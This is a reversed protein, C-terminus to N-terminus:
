DWINVTTGTAPQDITYGILSLSAHAASGNSVILTDGATGADFEGGETIRFDLRVKDGEMVMQGGYAASALNVLTGEANRAWYGNVGLDADVYLSFTRTVGAAGVEATFGIEGVPAQAWSPLAPPTTAPTFDVLRADSGDVPKGNVSDVVLTVFSSSGPANARELTTSVVAPQLADQVGDGNGDGQVAPTTGNGIGPVQQEVSPAVGNGDVVVTTAGSVVREVAGYGDTYTARVSIEHGIDQRGLVHSAGTAGAIEQGDALWQYSVTGMGDIDDLTNTALLTQGLIPSGTVLVSGTPADNVNAVAVSPTSARAEVTGQGDTYDAIVTVAHGVDAQSLVYTSGVAVIAGNVMWQYRVTGLGDTDALSHSATLTQYQTADGSITVAGSPLDNVRTLVVDNGTGGTYSIRFLVGGLYIPAGEPLGAFHGTIADTGDNDILTISDGLTPVYAADLQLDLPTGSLSVGGAVTLLTTGDGNLKLQMPSTEDLALNGTIDIVGAGTNVLRVNGNATTDIGIREGAALATEVLVPGTGGITVTAGPDVHHLTVLGTGDNVLTFSGAPNDVLTPGSGSTHIVAGAAVGDLHLTGTGDNVLNLNGLPSEIHIDGSGVLRVTADSPANLVAVDAHDTNDVTVTGSGFGSLDLAQPGTGEYSVTSGSAVGTTTVLGTGQNRVTVDGLPSSVLTPGSGDVTLTAGPAMHSVTAPGTGSHHLTVDGVAHDVVLPGSGDSTISAGAPLGDVTTTGTGDLHLVVDGDPATLRTPGNGSVTVPAGDHAGHITVTGPGQNVLQLAGEPNDITTPGAGSTTVTADDDLGTVTVTGPGANHVTLDGDPDSVTTPGSGGVNLTEGDDLGTVTTTAPGNNTLTLSGDPDSVVTPGTGGTTIEADDDLGTVTVTGPGHNIVTLDGDPNSVTVPGATTVELTGGHPMGDVTVPGTGTNTITVDGRPDVILVPDDTGLTLEIDGDANGVIAPSTSIDSTYTLTSSATDVYRVVARIELNVDSGGLVHLHATAGAIDTWAGNPVVRTQWQYSTAAAIELPTRDVDALDVHATLTEGQRLDGSITVRPADTTVTGTPLDNVPTINLTLTNPTTDLDAGGNATGGTDRVQFTLSQVGNQADNANAVPTYVLRGAAIDAAAIAQGAAVAAGDLTLAGQAPLTALTVSALDDGEHDTYAFDALTFVHATDELLTVAHDTGVPADNVPVLNITTTAGVGTNGSQDIATVSVIRPTGDAAHSENVYHIARLALQFTTGDRNGSLTISHSDNGTVTIGVLGLQTVLASSVFLRELGGDLPNTITVTVQAINGDQDVISADPTAIAVGPSHETYSVAHHRGAAIEGNLDIVPTWPVQITTTAIASDLGDGADGTSVSADRVTISITRDGSFANPNTNNYLVTRLAAEYDARTGAGTFALATAGTLGHAGTGNGTIAIAGLSGAHSDGASSSLTEYTTGFLNDLAGSTISVSASVLTDPTAADLMDVDGITIGSGVVAVADGRPRFINTFDTGADGGNLDIVPADNVATVEIRATDGDTSFATTGGRVTADVKAGATGTAGDWLVYSLTAETANSGDPLFRIADTARLLLASGHSVAGVDTWTAGGDLSYQWSGGTAPGNNAHAHIAIGRGVAEPAHGAGGNALADVDSIGTTGLGAGVFESVLHGANPADESLTALVPAAATLVPADNVPTIDFTLTNAAAALEVGGHATGGDDQVRFQFSARAPGSADAAPTYVLKGLAIDAVTVRDGAALAVGDLTLVGTAPLSVLTISAFNGGDVDSFGFDGVAITIATDELATLTNDAGTPADNVAILNITTSAGVGTNGDVDTSTVEVIRATTDPADATNVYQIARLGIQFYTADRGAPYMAANYGLTISATGSGAVTIGLAALTAQVATSVFLSEASGDLPNAITVVVSHINGDQDTISADPRAIPVGPQGETYTVAHDRGAIADGSMDIVPTWPVQVTTTAVVPGAQVATTVPAGASWFTLTVGPALGALPGSAVFHQSDVVQGVTYGSDVGNLFIRQGVAIVHNPTATAFSGTNSAEGDQDSVSVTITRDGSYANPNTNNYVITRLAAQYDAHTGPGTLVIQTTGNGSIAIDGLSGAYTSGATSRLTEYLTGFANDFAGTALTVTASGLTDTADIDTIAIDDAVIAVEGGRPRFVATHDNGATGAGGLDVIPPNNAQSVNIQTTGADRFTAGSDDSVAWTLTANLSGNENPASTYLLSGTVLWAQVAAVSPGSIVLTSTDHGTLVVGPVNDLTEGRVTGQTVTLRLAFDGSGGDPDVLSFSTRIVEALDETFEVSPPLDVLTASDNAGNITVTLVAMDSLGTLDRVTYNFRDQLTDGVYLAEVDPHTENVVYTWAGTARNVTLTGYQGAVTYTNGDLVGAQGVGEVGGARVGIIPTTPDINNNSDSDNALLNGSAPTGAVTNAVGSAETATGSDNGAAPAVVGFEVTGSTTGTVTEHDGFDDTYSVLVSITSGGDTNTLTYASHTAGPIPDGNRLWQYTPTAGALGDADSITAVLTEGPTLIGDVTVVGTDDANAISLVNSFPAEAVGGADSYFAQVRVDKGAESQELVLTAGQGRPNGDAGVTIDTWTTGGDASVQWQYTVSGSVGDADTPAAATLTQGQTATGSISVSGANNAASSALTADALILSFTTHSSAGNSDTGSVRIDLSPTGAPPNGSFNRTAPDFSLWSPLATGDALTASYTITDGEPDSFVAGLTFGVAQGAGVVQDALHTVSPADNAATIAITTTGVNSAHSGDNVSWSVTRSAGPDDSTSTYTVAKLAATWQALTATSGASTLALEGTAADYSATINGMTAPDNVLALVDGTRHGATIAVTAQALTANDADALILAPNLAQPAANETYAAIGAVGISPESATLTITRSAQEQLTGGHGGYEVIYYNQAVGNLDNWRGPNMGGSAYFQAYDEGLANDDNPENDSWNAYAGPQAVSGVSFVQGQEPGSMWVWTGENDRDSAGIWADSPLKSYLFTNESASTITALYGNLGNFTRGAAAALADDWSINPSHIVEYYHGNEPNYAPGGMIANINLQVQPQSGRNVQLAQLAANVDAQSGEFAISTATGDLVDDYGQTIATVGGPLSSLRVHGGGTVDVVVRVTGSYGSLADSTYVNTWANAQATAVPTDAFQATGAEQHIDVALQYTKDSWDLGDSVRFGIETAATAGTIRLHGAGIDTASITRGANVANWTAGDWLELTGSDPLSSILVVALPSGEADAYAGFDNLTLTLDTNVTVSVRDNTSVPGANIVSNTGSTPGAVLSLEFTSSVTANESDAATVRFTLPFTAGDLPTGSLTRSAADFSLWASPSTDQNDATTITDIVNGNGDVVEVTYTFGLGEADSFANAPIQFKWSGVGNFSQDAIGAAVVPLDNTGTIDVTLTRVSQAGLEDIVTVEFRDTATAGEPLANIGAMNTPAYTWAGTQADLTLTGFAGVRTVTGAATTGGRIGFHLDHNEIDTGALVDTLSGSVLTAAADDASTEGLSITIPTADTFTPADNVAAVTTSVTRAGSSVGSTATDNTTDFTARTAGSTYGGTYANDAAHVTLSGPTGDWNPEPSFRLLSAASLALGSAASVTGVAHWTTGGDTSYEWAGQAGTSADGVIVIGGLSAGSDVDAFRPAILAAVSMGHNDASAADELVAPLAANSALTPADNAGNVNVTIVKTTHLGGDSVRVTFSDTASQGAALANIAAANPTYVFSGNAAVALTGYAGPGSTNSFTLTGTPTTDSATLTGTVPAYTDSLGTDNYAAILGNSDTFAPATPTPPAPPPANGIDTPVPVAGTSTGIFISYSGRYHSAYTTARIVDGPQYIWSVYADYSREGDGSDDNQAVIQGNRDIQLYDDLEGSNGMYVYVRTGAEVGSLAYRDWKNGPRLPNDPDDNTISGDYKTQFTVGGWTWPGSGRLGSPLQSDPSLLGDYEALPLPAAEITGTQVELEGDGGLLPSGTLDESAAVDAGTALALRAIFAQGAEGEAVNCGYLLLDADETLAARIAALAAGHTDLSASDVSGNGLMLAGPGGHSVVHVAEVGSHGALARAMQALGDEDANLRVVQISPDVNALLSEFGTVAADVFLFQVPTAASMTQTTM